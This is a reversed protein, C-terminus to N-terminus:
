QIFHTAFYLAHKAIPECHVQFWQLIRKLGKEKAIQQPDVKKYYPLTVLARRLFPTTLTEAISYRCRM